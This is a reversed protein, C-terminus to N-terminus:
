PAVLGTGTLVGVAGPARSTVAVNRRGIITATLTGSLASSGGETVTVNPQGLYLDVM